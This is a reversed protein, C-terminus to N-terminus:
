AYKYGVTGIIQHVVRRDDGVRLRYSHRSHSTIQHVVRRDDGVSSPVPSTIVQAVTGPNGASSDRALPSGLNVM